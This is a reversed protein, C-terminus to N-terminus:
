ANEIVVAGGEDDDDDDDAEDEDVHRRLDSKEPGIGAAFFMAAALTPVVWVMAETLYAATYSPILVITAKIAAIKIRARDM